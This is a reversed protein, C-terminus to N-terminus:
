VPLSMMVSNLQVQQAGPRSGRSRPSVTQHQLRPGPPPPSRPPAAAPHQHTPSPPPAQSACYTQSSCLGTHTSLVSIHSIQGILSVDILLSIPELAAATLCEDDFGASAWLDIVSRDSIFGQDIFSRDSIFWQDIFSWDSCDDGRILRCLAM